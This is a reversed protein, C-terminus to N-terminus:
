GLAGLAALAMRELLPAMAARDLATGHQTSNILGFVAHAAARGANEDCGPAVQRIVGAWLEVYQRQVRRVRRRDAEVLSALDRAQVTILAPNDLAFDVHFRVLARLAAAPEPHEGVRQEGAALLTRSIDALMQGLVDDKNRFHRYVGPGSIGVAAGIDDIGVGHFGRHAFLEAAAALIQQRRTPAAPPLVAGGNGAGDNGDDGGDGPVPATGM